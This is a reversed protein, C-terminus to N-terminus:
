FMRIGSAVAVILGVVIIAVAVVVITPIIWPYRPAKKEPRERAAM